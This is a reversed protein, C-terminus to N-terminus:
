NRNIKQGNQFITVCVRKKRFKNLDKKIKHMSRVVSKFGSKKLIAFNMKDVDILKNRGFYGIRVRNVAYRDLLKLQEFDNIKRYYFMSSFRSTVDIMKNLREITQDLWVKKDVKKNRKRCIKKIKRKLKNFQYESIQLKKTKLVFRYGVFDIFGEKKLDLIKQENLNLNFQSFILRLHSIFEDSNISRPLIFVFDDAFSVFKLGEKKLTLKILNLYVEKFISSIPNGMGIGKIKSKKLNQVFDKLIRMVQEDIKNKLFFELLYEVDVNENFKEVDIKILNDSDKLNRTMFIFKNLSATLSSSKFHIQKKIYDSIIKVVIKDGIAM